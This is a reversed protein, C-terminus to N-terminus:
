LLISDVNLRRLYNNYFFIEHNNKSKFLCVYFQNIEQFMLTSTWHSHARHALLVYATLTDRSVLAM